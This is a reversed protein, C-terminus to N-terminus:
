LVEKYDILLEQLKKHAYFLRSRVTCENVGIEQAIERHSWGEIDFWQVVQRHNLPIKDMADSIAQGLEKRMYEKDVGEATTKDLFVSDVDLGSDVDDISLKYVNRNKRIHNLTTNYAITHIWTSFNSEGRFSGISKYAKTLIDQLLDQTDNHNRVMNYVMGYLKQRTSDIMSEFNHQTDSVPLNHQTDSLSGSGNTNQHKTKM